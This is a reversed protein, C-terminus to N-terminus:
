IRAEFLFPFFTKRLSTPYSGSLSDSDGQHGREQCGAQWPGETLAASLDALTGSGGLLAVRDGPRADTGGAEM